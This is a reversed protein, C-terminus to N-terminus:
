FGGKFRNAEGNDKAEWFPRSLHTGLRFGSTAICKFYYLLFTSM